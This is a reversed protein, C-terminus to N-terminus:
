VNVDGELLFRNKKPQKVGDENSLSEGKIFGTTTEYILPTLMPLGNFIFRITVQKTQPFTALQTSVPLTHKGVAFGKGFDDPVGNPFHLHHIHQGDVILQITTSQNPLRDTEILTVLSGNEWLVAKASFHSEFHNLDPQIFQYGGYISGLGPVFFFFAIWLMKFKKWISPKPEPKGFLKFM